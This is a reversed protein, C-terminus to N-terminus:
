SKTCGCRRVGPISSTWCSWPLSRRWRGPRASGGGLDALPDHGGLLTSRKAIESVLVIVGASIALKLLYYAM